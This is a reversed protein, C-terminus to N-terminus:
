LITSVNALTSIEQAIEQMTALNNNKKIVNVVIQGNKRSIEKVTLGANVTEPVPSKINSTNTSM